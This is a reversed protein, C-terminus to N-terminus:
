QRERAHRISAVEDMLKRENQLMKQQYVLQENEKLKELTKQKKVIMVLETRKQNVKLTAERVCDTQKEINM